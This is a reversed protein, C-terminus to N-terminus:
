YLKFSYRGVIEITEINKHQNWEQTSQIQEVEIEIQWICLLVCNPMCKLIAIAFLISAVTVAVVVAIFYLYIYICLSIM